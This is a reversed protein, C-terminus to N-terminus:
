QATGRVSTRTGRDAATSRPAIPRRRPSSTSTCSRASSRCGSARRPRCRTRSRSTPTCTPIAPGPTATSLRPRSSDAPRSRGHAAEIATAVERPAVAWLTSVSKVPSFTLDYGAVATQRPSSYRRLADSLERSSAPERDHEAVFRKRAVNSRVRALVDYPSKGTTGSAVVRRAVVAIFGDVGSTTTSRTRRGM